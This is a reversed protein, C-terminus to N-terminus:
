RVRLAYRGAETVGLRAAIESRDPHTIVVYGNWDDGLLSSGCHPCQQVDPDHIAHCQRCALRGRTARLAM